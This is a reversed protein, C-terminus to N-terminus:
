SRKWITGTPTDELVIGRDKLEDRIEDSRPFDRNTRAEEREKILEEIEGDLAEEEFFIIGLVSDISRLFSLIDNIESRSLSGASLLVNVDKVLEFVAGLAGSTDFDDNMSAEFKERVTNILEIVQEGGDGDEAAELNRVFDHLRALAAKSQDLLVGSFNIPNRYHTQLFMLRVVLPDYHNFIDRLTAFNGLSKSMKENDVNIFGNHIWYKAFTGVGFAGVSQAVECEHHPFVLDLGGGHIDFTEGLHRYSMASCEIHWGPRGEGWPSEWSPEKDTKKFKWLAFDYPNKKEENVAVRAGMQLDELKQGSFEAYAPFSEIDFYVGDSLAYVHGADELKRIIMIMEEIHETAKPQVTAPSIQLRGYDKAYEPIVREALEKVTVGEENARNIMKDDIDTYNSVFNVEFGRYEFYKRMVDFSVASRGHGLHPIDYVTPGCLYFGIKKEVIPEFDVKRGLQTSFLRIM